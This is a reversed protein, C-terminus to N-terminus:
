RRRRWAGEVSQPPPGVFGVTTMLSVSWWLGRWYSGVTETEFAAGAGAGLVLGVVAVALVVKLWRRSVPM